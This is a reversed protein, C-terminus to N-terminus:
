SAKAVGGVAERIADEATAEGQGSILAFRYAQIARGVDRMWGVSKAASPDKSYRAPDFRAMERSPAADCRRDGRYIRLMVDGLNDLGETRLRSDSYPCFMDDLEGVTQLIQANLAAAQIAVLSADTATITIKLSGALEMDDPESRVMRRTDHWAITVGDLTAQNKIQSM